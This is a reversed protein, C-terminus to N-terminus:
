FAPADLTLVPIRPRLLRVRVRHAVPQALRNNFGFCNRISGLQLM